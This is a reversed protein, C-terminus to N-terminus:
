RAFPLLMAVNILGPLDPDHDFAGADWAHMFEDGSMQLYHRAARDLIARGEGLDRVERVQAQSDHEVTTAM